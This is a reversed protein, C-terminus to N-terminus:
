WFLLKIKQGMGGWWYDEGTTGNGTGNGPKM